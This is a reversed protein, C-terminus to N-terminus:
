LKKGESWDLLNKRVVCDEDDCRLCQLVNENREEFDEIHENGCERMM